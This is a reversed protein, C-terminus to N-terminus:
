SQSTSSARQDPHAASTDIRQRYEVHASLMCLLNEWGIQSLVAEHTGPSWELLDVQCHEPGIPPGLQGSRAAFARKRSEDHYFSAM